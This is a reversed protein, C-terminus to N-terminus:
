RRLEIALDTRPEPLWGMRVSDRVFLAFAAVEELDGKNNYFYDAWELPIDFNDDGEGTVGPRDVWLVRALPYKQCAALLEDKRRVGVCVGGRAFCADVLATAGMGKKLADGLAVLLTRAPRNRSGDWMGGATHMLHLLHLPDAGMSKAKGEAVLVQRETEIDVLPASTDTAATEFAAALAAGVTSKGARAPGIIIFQM